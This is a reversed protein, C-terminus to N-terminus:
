GNQNVEKSFKKNLIFFIFLGTIFFGSALNLQMTSENKYSDLYDWGNSVYHNCEIFSNVIVTNGDSDRVIRNLFEDDPKFIYNPNSTIDPEIFGEPYNGCILKVIENTKESM